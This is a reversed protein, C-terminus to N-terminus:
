TSERHVRKLLAQYIVNVENGPNVAQVIDQRILYGNIDRFSEERFFRKIKLFSKIYMLSYLVGEIKDRGSLLIKCREKIKDYYRDSFESDGEEIVEEFSAIRFVENSRVRGFEEMEAMLTSFDPFDVIDMLKEAKVFPLKKDFENVSIYKRMLKQLTNDEFEYFTSISFDESFMSKWLEKLRKFRSAAEKLGAKMSEEAGSRYGIEIEEIEKNSLVSLISEESLPKLGGYGLELYSRDGSEKIEIVM